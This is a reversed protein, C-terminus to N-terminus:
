VILPSLLLVWVVGAYQLFIANAATTWKTAIVFAVVCAGCSVIAVAVVRSSQWRRQGWVDKRFVLLLAVGAILSRYFSVKLASDSIAKIGIGGTSWCL